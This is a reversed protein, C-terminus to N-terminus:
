KPEDVPPLNTENDSFIGPPSIMGADYMRSPNEVQIDIGAQFADRNPDSLENRLESRLSSNQLSPTQPVDSSEQEYAALEERLEMIWPHDYLEVASPRKMGDITLCQRIFDIGSFSLQGPEPLPPHKTAVGIHFMIAWENDLNSWPKHGTAMELVVCGMSWIDMAGKRSRRDSKIVEPSMYMPTGSLSNMPMGPVAAAPPPSFISRGFAVSGKSQALIKSAGFDVFKILGNHDLLINDPKIDRHVVGMSHLYMIGEVMQMTYVKVVVEDEIRGNELLSTLTGGSCFEEFIYVKDRHLELGYYEVINTHHLLEMVSLEDKVQQILTSLSSSNKFRIEKAAMVGGTDLNLALYVSGFAGAAIFRGQQWRIVNKSATAALLALSEDEPSEQVMVRGALHMEVLIQERTEEVLEVARLIRDNAPRLSRDQPATLSLEHLDVDGAVDDIYSARISEDANAGALREREKEKLAEINSRAGLLDFHSILLTMCAAVKQRLTTFESEPLQLINNGRTRVMAFELANVAWRFTKRDMPDCDDCIFAVWAIALRTLLRGLRTRAAQDMTRLAAQGHESAFIFWNEMLEQGSHAAGLAMKVPHVSDVITEALKHTARQIKKLERDVPPLHAQQEALCTLPPPPPLRSEPDEEEEEEEEEDFYAAFTDKASKLRSPHTAILRVRQDEMELEVAPMSLVLVTGRWVFNDQPSVVLLYQGDGAESELEEEELDSGEHAEPDEDGTPVRRHVQFARSLMQRVTEPHQYLSPEGIIYLGQAEYLETYVLFHGTEILGDMFAVTDAGALSYEASNGFRSMLLRSYRQLKRHRLRVGDLVKAYWRMVDENTVEPKLKNKEKEAATSSLMAHGGTRNTPTDHMSYAPLQIQGQFSTIVRLILKHTLSSVHEAVLLGGGATAMTVEEMIGWQAELLETEKFYIGQHTSKLKMHILKFFFRLAALITTEYSDAICPPLNWKGEPDPRMLDEYDNKLTCALGIALRFDDLMQDVSLMSPELVQKAISLRVRLVEEMLQTPYKIIRLLDETFPPLNLEELTDSFDLYLTRASEVHAHLYVLAGREFMKQLGDEKLIREVFIGTEVSSSGEGNLQSPRSKPNLVASGTVDLTESGSLKKLTEVSDRVSTVVAYWSTLTDLRRIFKDKGCEPYDQRLGKLHPYLTEATDWRRLLSAVMKLATVNKPPATGMPNPTTDEKSPCVFNFIEEILPGVVRRRREELHEKEQEITRGRKHARLEQWMDLRNIRQEEYSELARGIRTKESRLVEGGLVSALMTQWEMRQMDEATEVEIEEDVGLTLADLGAGVMNPDVSTRRSHGDEDDSDSDQGRSFYADEGNVSSRQRYKQNFQSYVSPVVRARSNRTSAASVPSSHTSQHRVPRLGPRSRSSSSSSAQRPRYSPYNASTRSTGGTLDELLDDEEEEDLSPLSHRQGAMDHNQNRHPM